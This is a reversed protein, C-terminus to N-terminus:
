RGVVVVAEINVLYDPCALESVVVLTSAPPSSSRYLEERVKRAARAYEINTVYTTTKVISQPTGGVSIVAADLNRWIQRVQAEPNAKGVVNGDAALGVQGAIYATSDVKVVHTYGRPQSMSNPNIYQQGPM